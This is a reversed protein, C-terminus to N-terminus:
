GQAMFRERRGDRHVRVGRTFDHTTITCGTDNPCRWWTCLSYTMDNKVHCHPKLATGCGSCSPTRTM